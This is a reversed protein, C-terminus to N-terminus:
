FPFLNCAVIPLIKNKSALNTCCQWYFWICFKVLPACVKNQYSLTRYRDFMCLSFVLINTLVRSLFYITSYHKIFYPLLFCILQVDLSFYVNKEGTFILYRVQNRCKWELHIFFNNCVRLILFFSVYYFYYLITKDM